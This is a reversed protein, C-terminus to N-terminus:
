PRSLSIAQWRFPRFESLRAFDRPNATMITVGLRAASMALLVDKTLRGKGINEYGYKQALRALVRGAQTWDSLGPNLLRKAKDFDRELRELVPHDRLLAGAYLEELVISSLWVPSEGIWRRFILAADGKPRLAAVYVSADFLVPPV